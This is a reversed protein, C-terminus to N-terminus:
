AASHPRLPASFPTWSRPDATCVFLLHLARVQTLKRSLALRLTCIRQCGRLGLGPPCGAASVKDRRSERPAEPAVVSQSDRTPLQTGAKHLRGAVRAQSFYAGAM